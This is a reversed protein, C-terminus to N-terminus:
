RHGGARESNPLPCGSCQASGPDGPGQLPHCSHSTMGGSETVIGRVSHHDMEATMSPTLDGVVLITDQPLHKLDVPKVGVLLELLNRKIDEVDTAGSGPISTRPVRSCGKSCISSRNRPLKRLSDGDINAEIQEILFPDSLMTVHGRIIETDRPDLSQELKEALGETYRICGDIARHLRAKEQEPDAAPGTEYTINQQEVVVARGIGIGESAPIGKLMQHVEEQLKDTALGSDIMECAKALQAEEDVGECRVEIETGRKLGAAMLLMVSKGNAIKDASSITIDSQFAAMARAFDSAARMHFGQENVITTKKSVM